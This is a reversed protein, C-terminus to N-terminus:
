KTIAFRNKMFGKAPSDGHPWNEISLNICNDSKFM